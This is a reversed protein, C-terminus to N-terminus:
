TLDAEESSVRADVASDRVDKRGEVVHSIANRHLSM